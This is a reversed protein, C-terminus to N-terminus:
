KPPPAPTAALQKRWREAQEAKGANPDSHNWKDYLRALADVSESQWRAAAADSGIVRQAEVLLPEADAYREQGLLVEGLEMKGIAVRRHTPGLLKMRADLSQRFLPESEAFKSQDKLSLALSHVCEAVNPDDAPLSARAIDLAERYAAEAEANKQQHRLTSALNNLSGAIDPHKAPLVKRQIALSERLAQEADAYQGNMFLITGLTGLTAALDPHNASYTERADDVAERALKIAEETQEEQMLTMALNSLSAITDPHAPPLVHRRMALAERLPQESDKVRGQAFLVQGLNSLGNARTRDDLNARINLENAERLLAEAENIKGQAQLALALNVLNPSVESAEANPSSRVMQLADQLTREADAIRGQSYYLAGLNNLTTAIQRSDAGNARRLELARQHNAEAANLEGLGHLTTGITDRVAAEVLPQDKLKGADLEKVASQMVAVVTVKDGLMREPNASALMDRQFRNVADAINAQQKAERERAVAIQMARSAHILGITTGVIGAILAIAVALTASVGIKHRRIMKRVRYTRSPAVALVPEDALYRAVDAALAAASEYRRTRDKEICRMVIWDLEGKVTARLRHSDTSRQAAVTPLKAMSSLRTSPPPPDVERIVRQMEVYAKSRLDIADFPTSGTLLEYLLVGLSYIDSRTDVDLGSMEAQEPSMYEPTGIMSRFETHLTKETLRVETAKAVGFDIIKPVPRGDHLTVLVNSPKIDRHIVGKQHAHQVAQCVPIFLELRQRPTLRAEDCYQTIPVGNVLEMVFFPGGPHGQPSAPAAGADFVRAINPHDMMALAQREAEFRAVVQKTDRGSYLYGAKILKLAVRRRVPQEQEALYVTGFGGEGIVELLRYPGIQRASEDLRAHSSENAIVRHADGALFKNAHADVDADLLAQVRARLSTNGRCAGDLFTARQDPPLEGAELFIEKASTTSSVHESM